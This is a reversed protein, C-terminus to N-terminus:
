ISQESLLINVLAVARTSLCICQVLYPFLFFFCVLYWKFRSLRQWSEFWFWKKQSFFNFYFSTTFSTMVPWILNRTWKCVSLECCFEGNEGLMYIYAVLGNLKYKVRVAALFLLQDISVFVFLFMLWDVANTTQQARLIWATWIPASICSSQRSLLFLVFLNGELIFIYLSNLKTVQCM